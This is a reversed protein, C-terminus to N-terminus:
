RALRQATELLMAHVFAQPLNGRLQRQEVDYEEALLGPPGCAARNREFWRYAETIEGQHWHALALQFGCLLFAGEAAGLPRNDHAFRYVYGDETLERHVADLTARIRPDQPPIAGRVPPLLLSADTGDHHPSRRWAKDARLCRRTTTALITEALDCLRTAERAPLQAAASRLGAVVALRSHTWWDSDIEWIGADPETWRAEIVDVALLLAQHGDRDLRDHGAAVALLQLIEGLTDLQFQGDVRNGVVDAGGPYGPLRLTAQPPIPSGDTRYGPALQDGHELLRATVFGVATDLLPQPENVGAAIGAYCQDRIWAYRYDYNRGARAREPLGLTAAAVM